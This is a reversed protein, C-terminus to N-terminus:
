KVGDNVSGYKYGTMCNVVALYRVVDRKYCSRM